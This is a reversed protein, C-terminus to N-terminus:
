GDQGGVGDRVYDRDGDKDDSNNNTEEKEKDDKDDDDDDDGDDNDKKDVWEMGLTIGIVMKIM